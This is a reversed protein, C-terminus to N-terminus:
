AWMCVGDLDLTLGPNVVPAASGRGTDGYGLSHKSLQVTSPLGGQGGQFRGPDLRPEDGTALELCGGMSLGRFVFQTSEAMGGPVYESIQMGFQSQGIYLYVTFSM